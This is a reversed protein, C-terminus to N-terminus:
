ALKRGCKPCVVEEGEPASIHLGCACSYTRYTRREEAARARIYGELIRRGELERAHAILHKAVHPMNKIRAEAEYASSPWTFREPPREAPARAATRVRVQKVAAAPEPASPQTESQAPARRLEALEEERAQLEARLSSLEEERTRLEEKLHELEESLDPARRLEALEEERAQLEARLSSLEEELGPDPGARSLEKQLSALEEDRSRLEGKLYEVERERAELQERLSALEEDRARLDSRLQEVEESHSSLESLEARLREIERERAELQERLSATSQDQARLASLERQLREVEETKAQLEKELDQVYRQVPDEHVEKKDAKVSDIIEDLDIDPIPIEEPCM